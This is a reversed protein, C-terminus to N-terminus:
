ARAAGQRCSECQGTIAFHDLFAEFGTAARIADGLRQLLAPDLDRETGCGRCVLHHHPRSRDVWAFASRGGADIESVARLEKLTTLARYVTSLPMPAGQEHAILAHLEEVTRHGGAHQLASAVRQRQPTLRHGGSRLLAVTEGECSVTGEAFIRLQVGSWLVTGSAAREGFRGCRARRLTTGRIIGAHVSADKEEVVAGRLGAGGDWMRRGHGSEVRTAHQHQAHRVGGALAGLAQLGGSPALAHAWARGSRKPRLDLRVWRERLHGGRQAVRLRVGDTREDDPVVVDVGRYDRDRPPEAAIEDHYRRVPQRANM